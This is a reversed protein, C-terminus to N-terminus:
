KLTLPTIRMFKWFKTAKEKWIVIFLKKIINLRIYEQHVPQKLNKKSKDKFIIKIDHKIWYGVSSFYIHLKIVHLTGFVYQEVLLMRM